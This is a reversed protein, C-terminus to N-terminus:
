LTRTSQQHKDSEFGENIEPSIKAPKKPNETINCLFLSLLILRIENVYM